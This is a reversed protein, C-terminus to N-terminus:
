AAEGYYRGSAMAEAVRTLCTEVSWSSILHVRVRGNTAEIANGVIKIQEPGAFARFRCPKGDAKSKAAVIRLPRRAEILRRVERAAVGLKYHSTVRRAMYYGHRPENSGEIPLGLFIGMERNYPYPSKGQATQTAAFDAEARDMEAAVDAFEGSEARREDDRLQACWDVAREDVNRSTIYAMLAPYKEAGNQM